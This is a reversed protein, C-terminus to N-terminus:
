ALLHWDLNQRLPSDKLADLAAQRATSDLWPRDLIRRPVLWGIVRLAGTRPRPDEDRAEPPDIETPQWPSCRLAALRCIHRM